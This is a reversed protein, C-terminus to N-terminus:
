GAAAPPRNPDSPAAPSPRRAGPSPAQLVQAVPGHATPGVSSAPHRMELQRHPCGQTPAAAASSGGPGRAAASPTSLGCPATPQAPSSSAAHSEAPQCPPRAGDGRVALGHRPRDPRPADVAGAGRLRTWAAQDGEMTGSAPAWATPGSASVCGAQGSRGKAPRPRREPQDGESSTIM